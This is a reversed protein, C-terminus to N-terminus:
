TVKLKRKSSKAELVAAKIREYEDSGITLRGYDIDRYNNKLENMLYSRRTAHNDHSSWFFNTGQDGYKQAMLKWVGPAERPDYGANIIYQLGVRDSQNELARQHGNVIAANVLNALDSLSRFGYAAAVAGALGIALRKGKHFNQQRWTHEHTSHAIEHGVVAALQAENKLLEILGSNVVVIGNPTAFANANDDLVVHFQFPIKRPDDAALEAQYAPILRQGLSAVYDQVEQNPLLKFKGVKDIKLEGPKLAQAPKTTVKLSKWLKAEGDELDNTTFQVQEAIIRGTERDRKGEYTMAMGVTVQDLSQLPELDEEEADLSESKSQKARQEALRKERKTPKFLVRTNKTVLITQGDARLEGAWSGDILEIGEPAASVFATQEISKFQELDVRISKAKLEGTAENLLGRIELEVGVRIDNLGFTIDPSANEFDLTFADDRTIRYDEIDFNTPSKFDTVYGRIKVEKLKATQEQAKPVQLPTPPTTVPGASPRSRTTQPLTRPAVTDRDRRAETPQSNPKVPVVEKRVFKAQIYGTRVGFRPDEFQVQLWDGEDKLLTIRTGKAVVRLPVRNADPLLVIPANELVLLRQTTRQAFSSSASIAVVALLSVVVRCVRMM